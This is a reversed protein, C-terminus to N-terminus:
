YHIIFIGEQKLVRYAEAVAVEANYVHDIMSRMHVHDFSQSALPLHEAYGSVFNVKEKIRPYAKTLEKLDDVRAFTNMYPDVILYDQNNYVEYKSQHWQGDSWSEHETQFRKWNTIASGYKCSLLRFDCVGNVINYETGYNSFYKDGRFELESKDLPDRLIDKVWTDVKVYKTDM